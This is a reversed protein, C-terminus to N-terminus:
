PSTRAPLRHLFFRIIRLLKEAAAWQGQADRETIQYNSFGQDRMAQEHANREAAPIRPM